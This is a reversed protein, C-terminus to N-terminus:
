KDGKIKRKDQFYKFFEKLKEHRREIQYREGPANSLYSEFIYLEENKRNFGTRAETKLRKLFEVVFKVFTPMIENIKDGQDKEVLEEVFLYVSLIFSRNRLASAKKKFYNDLQDFVSIIFRCRTEFFDLENGELEAYDKFFYNLDEYRTRSFAHIKKRSFSNICIQASLTEKAFRRDAIKVSKIFPHKVMEDFVFNRMLGTSAHLKEGTNLLLGLQLRLFLKRLYEESVDTIVTIQLKYSFIKERLKPDLEKFKRRIGKKIEYEYEYEYENGIFEWIAWLRQQGDVVEYYENTGVKYFYIKPIDIDNLISDILLQKDKLRWLKPERQYDPFHIKDRREYIEKITWDVVRRKM